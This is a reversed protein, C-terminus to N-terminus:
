LLYAAVALAAIGGAPAVAGAGATVVTSTPRPLGVTTTFVNASTTTAVAVPEVPAPPPVAVPEVTEVPAPAQAVSSVPAVPAVSVPLCEVSAQRAALKHTNNNCIKVAKTLVENIATKKGCSELVCDAAAPVLTDVNKCICDLAGDECNTHGLVADKVCHQACKPLDKIGEDSVASVAAVISLVVAASFKM